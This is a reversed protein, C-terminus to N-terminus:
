QCPHCFETAANQGRFAVNTMHVVDLVDVAGSCDVDADTVPCMEDVVIPDGRFAFGITKIVDLADTSGDCAPDNHCGCPKVWFSVPILRPSNVSPDNHTVVLNASYIGPSLGSPDLIMQLTLDAGAASISIPYTQATDNFRLWPTPTLPGTNTVTVSGSLAGNGINGITVTFTDRVVGNISVFGCPNSTGTSSLAIRPTLSPCLYQADVTGGPLRLYMMPNRQSTGEGQPIGGADVDGVYLIDIDSVALGISPWAESHCVDGPRSPWGAGTDALGPNCNPTKTNTLNQPVSWSEGADRSIAVYIEGNLYGAASYDAREAATPGGYQSYVVYLYDTNSESGGQCGTSGDGIGLSVKAFNLNFLGPTAFDSWDGVAVTTIHGPTSSWHKLSAALSIKAVKQEVWTIHLREQGDYAMALDPWAQPGGADTYSTIVHRSGPGLESGDIWGVGGSQSEHYAVDFLSGPGPQVQATFAVAAKSSSNDTAIMFSLNKTSDLVVPGQWASGDYRWYWILGLPCNNLNDIAIEHIIDAGEADQSVAIKPWMVESCRPAPVDLEDDVHLGTGLLPFYLHWPHYASTADLRQHLSVHALDGHGVAVNPYGSHSNESAVSSGSCGSLLSDGSVSYAAYNVYRYDYWNVVGTYHMWAFHVIDSGTNRAVLHGITGQSQYDYTTLAIRAGVFGPDYPMLCKSAAMANDREEIISQDFPRAPASEDPIPLLRPDVIPPNAALAASFPWVIVAFAVWSFRLRHPV